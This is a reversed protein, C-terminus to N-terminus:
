RGNYDRGWEEMLDALKKLVLGKKLAGGETADYVKGKADSMSVRKEIWERYIVFLKRAAVLGGNVGQVMVTKEDDNVEIESTDSAHAMGGSFALDLGVYAVKECGLKLCIDLAITSVSGGTEYTDYGNDLAYQEARAFGKQCALYRMGKYEKAIRKCCTSACIIPVECEELGEVQSYLNPQADLFVVYDPVINMNILKHFVTGVAVIITSEMKKHLLEINNDLSPGAAVIIANKGEFDKKLEDVYADCNCVNDRFNNELLVSFNRQGSDKIFFKELQFKVEKNDIHRMSPYHIILRSDEQLLRQWNICEPDHILKVRSNDYIWDLKMYTNAARIVEIDPEIIDIYIGDDIDLLSKIHYGLGLGIIVYHACETSYYQRAFYDGETAPNVNSHLYYSGTSDTIRATWLGSSTLEINVYDAIQKKCFKDALESDYKSLICCNSELIETSIDSNINNILIEQIDILHPLMQLELLDALLIYDGNSQAMMMGSLLNMEEQENISVGIESLMGRKSILINLLESLEGSFIGFMRLARHYNQQRVCFVIRNLMTMNDAVMDILYMIRDGMM